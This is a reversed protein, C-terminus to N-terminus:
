YRVSDRSNSEYSTASLSKQWQICLVLLMIAFHTRMEGIEKVDGGTDRLIQKGEGEIGASDAPDGDGRDGRLQGIPTSKYYYYYYCYYYYSNLAVIRDGDLAGKDM